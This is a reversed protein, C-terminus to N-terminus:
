CGGGASRRTLIRALIGDRYPSTKETICIIQAFDVPITFRVSQDVGSLDTDIWFRSNNIVTILQLDDASYAQIKWRAKADARCLPGTAPCAAQRM